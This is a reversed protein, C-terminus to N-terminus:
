PIAASWQLRAERVTTASSLHGHALELSIANRLSVQARAGAVTRRVPPSTLAALYASNRANTLLEQRAFLTVGAGAEAELQVYGALHHRFRLPAVASGSTDLFILNGLARVRSASLNAFVGATRVTMPSAALLDNRNM